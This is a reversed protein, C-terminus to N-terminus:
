DVVYDVGDLVVPGLMAHYWQFVRSPAHHILAKIGQRSAIQHQGTFHQHRHLVAQHGKGAGPDGSRFLYVAM